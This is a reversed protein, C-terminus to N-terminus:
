QQTGPQNYMPPVNTGPARDYLLTPEVSPVLVEGLARKMDDIAARRAQEVADALDYRNMDEYARRVAGEVILEHYRTPLLPTDAAATIDVPVKIYRVNLTAAALPFARVITGADVWYWQPTTAPASVSGFTAVVWSREVYKLPQSTTSNFVAIVKRLDAITFPSAGSGDNELFTWDAAAAIEQYSQNLWRKARTPPVHDFGRHYFEITLDGLNM